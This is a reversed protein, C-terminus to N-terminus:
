FCQLVSGVDVGYADVYIGFRCCIVDLRLM